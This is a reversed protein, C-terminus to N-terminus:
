YIAEKYVNENFIHYGTNYSKLKDTTILFFEHLLLDKNNSTVPDDWTLDLHFWNNDLYVLNWVHNDSSIRYNPINLKNLFVAMVEAYGGCLAKHNILVGSAKHSLSAIDDIYDNDYKTNNIIYDHFYKIKDYNNLDRIESIIEDIKKNVSIIENNSYNKTITVSIKNFVNISINISQYTNFPHIFNNIDNLGTNKIIYEADDICDEYDCYFSFEENGSNLGTYLINIIDQNNKAVFDDTEELFEFKYNLHYDNNNNLYIKKSIIFNEIIFNTIENNYRVTFFLLLILPLLKLFNKM